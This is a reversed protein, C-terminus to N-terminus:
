DPAVTRGGYISARCQMGDLTAGNRADWDAPLGDGAVHQANVGAAVVAQASFSSVVAM